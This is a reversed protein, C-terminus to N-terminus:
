EGILVYATGCLTENASDQRPKGSTRLSQICQAAALGEPGCARIAAKTESIQVRLLSSIYIQDEADLPRDIGRVQRNFTKLDVPKGMHVMLLTLLALKSGDLDKIPTNEAFGQAYTWDDGLRKGITFPGAKLEAGLPSAPGSGVVDDCPMALGLRQLNERFGAATQLSKIKAFDGFKM